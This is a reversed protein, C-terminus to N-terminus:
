RRGDDVGTVSAVRRPREAQPVVGVPLRVGKPEAVGETRWSKTVAVGDALAIGSQSNGGQSTGSQSNGSTGMLPTGAGRRVRTALWRVDLLAAGNAGMPVVPVAGM